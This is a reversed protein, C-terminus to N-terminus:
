KHFVPQLAKVLQNYKKYQEKYMPAFKKRPSYVKSGSATKSVASEADPYWGMAVAGLIAAGLATEEGIGSSANPTM